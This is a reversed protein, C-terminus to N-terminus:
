NRQTHRCNFCYREYWRIALSAVYRIYAEKNHAIETANFMTSLNSAQLFSELGHDVSSRMHGFVLYNYHKRSNRDKKRRLCQLLEEIPVKFNAANEEYIKFLVDLNEYYNRRRHHIINNAYSRRAGNAREEMESLVKRSMYKYLPTIGADLMDSTVGEIIMTHLDSLFDQKRDDLLTGVLRLTFDATNEFCKLITNKATMAVSFRDNNVSITSIFPTFLSEFAIKIRNPSLDHTVKEILCGFDELSSEFRANVLPDDEYDIIEKFSIILNKALITLQSKLNVNICSM